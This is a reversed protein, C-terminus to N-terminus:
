KILQWGITFGVSNAGANTYLPRSTGSNSWHKFYAEFLVHRGHEENGLKLKTKLKVDLEFNMKGTVDTLQGNSNLWHMIGSGLGVGVDFRKTDILWTNFILSMSVYSLNSELNTTSGYSGRMDWSWKKSLPFEHVTSINVFNRKTFKTSVPVAFNPGGAMYFGKRDNDQGYNELPLLSGLSMLGAAIYTLPKM